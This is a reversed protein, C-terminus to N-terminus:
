SFIRLTQLSSTDSVVQSLAADVTMAGVLDGDPGTVPMAPLQNNIIRRAATVASDYPNLRLIFPDMLDELKLGDDATLIDRLAVVGLLKKSKENEVLFIMSIFDLNKLAEQLRKRAEVVNLGASFYIVDNIMVGGVSNEPYQLLKVIRQSQENPMKALYKKMVPLHLRAALDAALDPSM